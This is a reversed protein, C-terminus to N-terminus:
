YCYGIVFPMACMVVVSLAALLMIISICIFRCTNGCSNGAYEDKMNKINNENEFFELVDNYDRNSVVMNDLDLIFLLAMSNLIIDLPEESMLIVCFSLYCANLLVTYNIVKGFTLWSTSLFSYGYDSFGGQTLSHLHKYFGTELQFFLVGFVSSLIYSYSIAMIRATTEGNGDCWGRTSSSKENTIAYVYLVVVSAIQVFAMLLVRILDILYFLWGKFGGDYQHTASKFAFMQYIDLGENAELFDKIGTWHKMIRAKNSIDEFDSFITSGQKSEWPSVIKSATSNNWPFYSQTEFPNNKLSQLLKLSKILNNHGLQEMLDLQSQYEILQKIISIDVDNLTKKSYDIQDPKEQKGSKKITINSKQDGGYNSFEDTRLPQNESM